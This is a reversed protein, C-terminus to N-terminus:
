GYITRKNLNEIINETTLVLYNLLNLLLNASLKLVSIIDYNFFHLNKKLFDLLISKLKNKYNLFTQYSMGLLKAGKRGSLSFIHKLTIITNTTIFDLFKNLIKLQKNKALKKNYESRKKSKYKVFNNTVWNSISNIISNLESDTLPSSLEKNKKTLFLTLDYKFNNTNSFITYAYKRGLNFLTTNRAGIKVKSIDYNILNKISDKCLSMKNLKPAKYNNVNPFDVLSIFGNFIFSTHLLPNRWVRPKNINLANNDSKFINNLELLIHKYMTLQNNNTVKIPNNLVWHLHEGKDTEVIITPYPINNDKCLQLIIENDILYDIDLSISPIFYQNGFRIFKNNYAEELNKYMYDSNKCESCLIKNGSTDIVKNVIEWLSVNM